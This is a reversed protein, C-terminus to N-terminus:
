VVFLPGLKETSCSLSPLAVATTSPPGEHAAPSLRTAAWRSTAGNVVTVVPNVTSGGHGVSVATRAVGPLLTSPSSYLSTAVITWTSNGGTNASCGTLTSKECSYERQLYPLWVSTIVM